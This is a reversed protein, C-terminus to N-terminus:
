VVIDFLSDPACPWRNFHLVKRGEVSEFNSDAVFTKEEEIFIIFFPLSEIGFPHNEWWILRFSTSKKVFCTVFQKRM